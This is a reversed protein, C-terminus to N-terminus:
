KMRVEYIQPKAHENQDILFVVHEDQYYSKNTSSTKLDTRIKVSKIIVYHDKTTILM